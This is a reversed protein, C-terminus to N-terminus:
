DILKWFSLPIKKFNKKRVGIFTFQKYRFILVNLQRISIGIIVVAVIDVLPYNQNRSARPEPLTAFAQLLPADAALHLTM